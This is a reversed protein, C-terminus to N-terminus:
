SQLFQQLFNGTELHIIYMGKTIGSIPYHHKQASETLIYVRGHIDYIKLTYPGETNVSIQNGFIKVPSEFTIKSGQDIAVIPPEVYDWSSKL